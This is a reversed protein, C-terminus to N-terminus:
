RLKVHLKCAATQPAISKDTIFPDLLM